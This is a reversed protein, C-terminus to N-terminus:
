VWSVANNIMTEIPSTITHYYYNADSTVTGGTLIQGYTKTYAFIVCGSGGAYGPTRDGSSGGGGGGGGYGDLGATGTTSTAGKGGGGAGGISNGTYDGGGGGGGGYYSGNIWPVGNGGGGGAPTDDSGGGGGGARYGDSAGPSGPSGRAGGANRGGLGTAPDTDFVVGPRINATPSGYGGFGGTGYPSPGVFGGRGGYGSQGRYQGIYVSYNYGSPAGAAFPSAGNAWIPATGSKEFLYTTGAGTPSSTTDGGPSYFVGGVGGAGVIVDAAFAGNIATLQYKKVGGGGGGGGGGGVPDVQGGGGGGGGGVVMFYVTISAPLKTAGHFNGISIQGSSPIKTSTGQPFGKQAAGVFSGGGRYSGLGIPASGGFENAIDLLSIQNPHAPTTM